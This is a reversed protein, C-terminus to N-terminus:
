CFDEIQLNVYRVVIFDKEKIDSDTSTYYDFKINVNKIGLGTAKIFTNLEKELCPAIRQEVDEKVKQLEGLTM